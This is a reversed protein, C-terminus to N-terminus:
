VSRFESSLRPVSSGSLREAVIQLMATFPTMAPQRGSYMGIRTASISPM